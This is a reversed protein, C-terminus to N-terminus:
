FLSVNARQQMELMLHKRLLQSKSQQERKSVLLVLYDRSRMEGWGSDETEDSLIKELRITDLSSMNVYNSLITWGTRHYLVACDLNKNYKTLNNIVGSVTYKAEMQEIKGDLNFKKQITDSNVVM